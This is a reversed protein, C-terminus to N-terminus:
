AAEGLGLEGQKEQAVLYVTDKLLGCLKGAQKETVQCQVTFTTKFTHGENLNATDYEFLVDKPKEIFSESIKVEINELKRDFKIAHEAAFKPHGSENWFLSKFDDPSVNFGFLQILESADVTAQCKIDIALVDDDGHKETRPNVNQIECTTALKFM